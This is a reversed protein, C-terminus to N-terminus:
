NRWNHTGDVTFVSLSRQNGDRVEFSWAHVSDSPSSVTLTLEYKNNVGTPVTEGQAVGAAIVEYGRYTNAGFPVDALAVNSWKTGDSFLVDAWVQAPSANIENVLYFFSYIPDAASAGEMTQYTKMQYGGGCFEWAALAGIVPTNADVAIKVDWARPDIVTTGDVTIVIDWNSSVTGTCPVTTLSYTTGSPTANSGNITVGSVAGLTTSEVDIKVSATGTASIDLDKSTCTIQSTCSTATCTAPTCTTTDFSIRGSAVDICCPGQSTPVTFSYQDDYQLIFKANAGIGAPLSSSPNQVRLSVWDGLASPTIKINEDYAHDPSTAVVGCDNDSSVLIMRWNSSWASSTGAVLMARMTVTSQGFVTGTFQGVCLLEGTTGNGNIDEATGAGDIDNEDVLLYLASDAFTGNALVFDVTDDANAIFEPSYYIVMGAGVPYLDSDLDCGNSILGARAESAVTIPADPGGTVNAGGKAREIVGAWLPMATFATVLLAIMIGVFSKRM